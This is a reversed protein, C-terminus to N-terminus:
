KSRGIGIYDGVLSDIQSRTLVNQADFVPMAQQNIKAMDLQDRPSWSVIFIAHTNPLQEYPDVVLQFLSQQGYRTALEAQSKDSYILTRIDYSWLLALLPHIASGVTRGSKPKYSGGWIMVTKHDIFGDFYQWFKRFILEKQDENIRMVSQLLPMDLSHTQSSQSLKTLETPLTNGGFGWGAQLYSSGIRDDLGIINSVQQIDLHYGDALRSMENMFSVRTALMAMISSRAFEITAIDAFYFARADLRLPQLASLYQNSSQPTKEGVLWLSPALMSSYAAGEQLFAFPIYYVWARKLRQALASIYGIQEIGSMVLPLAQQNSHNFAAIWSEEPWVSKISDLFLWYLIVKESDKNNYFVSYSQLLHEASDPLTQIVIQHQQVYMQWLAPLHREFDYQQLQQELWETNSYLHVTNGLSALVVASTIAEISHGILVCVEHNKVSTQKLAQTYKPRDNKTNNANMLEDKLWTSRDAAKLASGSTNYCSIQPPIM